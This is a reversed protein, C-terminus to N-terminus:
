NHNNSWLFLMPDTQFYNLQSRKLIFNGEADSDKWESQVRRPPECTIPICLYKRALVRLNPFLRKQDPLQWWILPSVLYDLPQETRFTALYEIEAQKEKHKDDVIAELDLLIKKQLDACDPLCGLLRFRPDLLTATQILPLAHQYAALLSTMLVNKMEFVEPEDKNLDANLFNKQLQHLMPWLMSMLAAPREMAVTDACLKLISLVQVLNNLLSKEVRSIDWGVSNENRSQIADYMDEFDDQSSFDLDLSQMLRKMHALRLLKDKVISTLVKFFCPIFQTKPDFEWYEAFNVDTNSVVATIKEKRLDWMEFLDKMHIKMEPLYKPRTLLISNILKKNKTYNVSFTLFADKEEDLWEEVSVSYEMCEALTAKVREKVVSYRMTLMEELDELTFDLGKKVSESAGESLTDTLAKFSDYVLSPLDLIGIGFGLVLDRVNNGTDYHETRRQRNLRMEDIKEGKKDNVPVNPLMKLESLPSHVLEVALGGKLVRPHSKILHERMKQFVKPQFLVIQQCYTCVVYDRTIIGTVLSGAPEDWMPFGFHQWLVSSMGIPLMCLPMYCNEDQKKEKRQDEEEEDSEEDVKDDEDAEEIDTWDDDSMFDPSEPSDHAAQSKEM